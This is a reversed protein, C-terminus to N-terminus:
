KVKAPLKNSAVPAYDELVLARQVLNFNFISRIRNNSLPEGEHVTAAYKLNLKDVSCYNCSEYFDGTGHIEKGLHKCAACYMCVIVIPNLINDLLNIKVHQVMLNQSTM